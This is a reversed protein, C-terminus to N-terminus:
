CLFNMKDLRYRLAYHVVDISLTKHYYGSYQLRGKEIEASIKLSLSYFNIRATVPYRWEWYLMQKNTVVKLIFLLTFLLTQNVYM